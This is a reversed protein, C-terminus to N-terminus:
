PSDGMDHHALLAAAYARRHDATWPPGLDRRPAGLYEPALGLTGTAEDIVQRHDYFHVEWGRRTAGDALLRLYMASDARTRAHYSSIQAELAAPVRPMERIAVAGVHHDAALADWLVRVYESISHEVERVLALGDDM